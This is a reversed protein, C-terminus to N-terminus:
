LGAGNCRAGTAHLDHLQNTIMLGHNSEARPCWYFCASLGSRSTAKKNKANSALAEYSIKMLALLRQHQHKQEISSSLRPRPSLFRFKRQRGMKASWSGYCIGTMHHHITSRLLSSNEPKIPGAGTGRRLLIQIRGYAQKLRPRQTKPRHMATESIGAKSESTNGTTGPSDM